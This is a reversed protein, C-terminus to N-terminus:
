ETKAIWWGDGDYYGNRLMFPRLVTIQGTDPIEIGESRLIKFIDKRIEEAFEFWEDMIRVSREYEISGNEYDYIEDAYWWAKNEVVAYIQALEGENNIVSYRQRAQEISVEPTPEGLMVTISKELILEKEMSYKNVWYIKLLGNLLM